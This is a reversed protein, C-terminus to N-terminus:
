EISGVWWGLLRDLEERREPSDSRNHLNRDRSKEQLANKEVVDAARNFAARAGYEEGSGSFRGEDTFLRITALMLSVGRVREDHKQFVVNVELIDMEEYKADIEEIRGAIEEHTLTDLLKVNFVQVPIHDEDTWTLSRLADTVTVIGEARGDDDAVVLSSIDEALMLEVADGLQNTLTTTRVPSSMVDNVPLDLLRDQEGAREGFGRHSLFGEHSGEGGHNDFGPTAGGQEHVRWDADLM